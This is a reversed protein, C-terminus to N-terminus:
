RRKVSSIDLGLEYKFANFYKGDFWLRDAVIATALCLLTVIIFERM